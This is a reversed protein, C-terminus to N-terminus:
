PSLEPCLNKLFSIRHLPTPGLRSLAQRHAETGYGRNEDFGFEPFSESYNEM